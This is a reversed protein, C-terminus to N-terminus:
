CKKTRLEDVFAYSNKGKLYRDTYAKAKDLSDVPKEDLMDISSNLIVSGRSSGDFEYVRVIFKVDGGLSKFVKNLMALLAEPSCNHESSIHKLPGFFGPSNVVSKLNERSM